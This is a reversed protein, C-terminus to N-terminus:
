KIDCIVIRHNGTDAIYLTNEVAYISFPWYIASKTGLMNEKFDSSTNFNPRGVLFDANENNKAPIKNFGLVRSNGTDNVLIGEKYFCADYTWNLTNNEPALRFQNQGCNEFNDQGIIIDAQKNFADDKNNWILIRYFQTDAIALNGKENIKISYPWIADNSEYDRTNFHAKGIVKDAKAYSKAPITDFFLVRRNGTDAIWLSKGDSFVGYPWNLTQSTPDNGIAKNPLNSNFDEQGLVVDAPQANQTPMSHWILVRHNWADAVVLKEGDSWIGSPYLLTKENVDGGSNRGIEDVESQGLIVDPVQYETTPITHWIFVRNRATDSVFLMNNAVFIGRPALFPNEKSGKFLRANKARDGLTEFNM